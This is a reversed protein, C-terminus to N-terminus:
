ESYKAIYLKETERKREGTCLRKKKRKRKLIENM